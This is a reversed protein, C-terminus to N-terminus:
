PALGEAAVLSQAKWSLRDLHGAPLAPKSSTCPATREMNHPNAQQRPRPLCTCPDERSVRQVDQPVAQLSMKFVCSSRGCNGCSGWGCSRWPQGALMGVAAGRSGQRCNECSGRGCSGWSQGALPQWPEGVGAGGVTRVAAGGVAAQGAAAGHSGALLEWLQGVAGRNSRRHERFALPVRLGHAAAGAQTEHLTHVGKTSEWGGNYQMRKHQLSLSACPAEFTTNPEQIGPVGGQIGFAATQLTIPNSVTQNSRAPKRSAGQQGRTPKGSAPARTAHQGERRARYQM